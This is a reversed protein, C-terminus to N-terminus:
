DKIRGGYGTGGDAHFYVSCWQKVKEDRKVKTNRAEVQESGLPVFRRYGISRTTQVYFEMTASRGGSRPPIVFSASEVLAGRALSRGNSPDGVM